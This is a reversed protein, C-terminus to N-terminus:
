AVTRVSDAGRPWRVFVRAIRRRVRRATRRRRDRDPEAIDPCSASRGHRKAPSEIVLGETPSM